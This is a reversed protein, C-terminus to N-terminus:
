PLCKEYIIRCGDNYYACNELMDAQSYATDERDYGWANAKCTERPYSFSNALYEESYSTGVALAACTNFPSSYHDMSTFVEFNLRCTIPDDHGCLRRMLDANLQDVISKWFIDQSVTVERFIVAWEPQTCTPDNRSQYSKEPGIIHGLIGMQLTNVRLTFALSATESNADTAAYGVVYSGAATPTGTLTRTAPDFSLGPVDSSLAYAVPPVGGSAKPLVLPQMAVGLTLTQDSVASDFAFSSSVTIAFSLQAHERNADTVEYIMAYTGAESPTGALTRTAADFRLGPVTPELSYALPASGGSAKPLVLPKMAVGLTLTQDSVASDFAPSSSVAIVFSLQDYERNVDTVEYIMAYTGVETPTGAVTRTAADFQLGPVAPELSYVLPARGGSAAPLVLPAIATGVKYRFGPGLEREALFSFSVPELDPNPACSQADCPSLEDAFTNFRAGPPQDLQEEFATRFETDAPLPPESANVSWGVLAGIAIACGVGATSVCVATVAVGGVATTQWAPDFVVDLATNVVKKAKGLWGRLYSAAEEQFKEFPDDFDSDAAFLMTRNAAVSAAGAFQADYLPATIAMVRRLSPNALMASMDGGLRVQGLEAVLADMEAAPIADRVAQVARATLPDAAGTRMFEALAAGSAFDERNPPSPETPETPETPKPPPDTPPPKTITEECGASVLLLAALAAGIM